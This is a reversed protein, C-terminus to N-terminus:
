TSRYLETINIKIPTTPPNLFVEGWSASRGDQGAPALQGMLEPSLSIIYAAPETTCGAERESM